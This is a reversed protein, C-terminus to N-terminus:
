KSASQTTESNKTEKEVNMGNIESFANFVREFDEGFPLSLLQERDAEDFVPIETGPVYAYNILIFVGRAEGDDTLKNANEFMRGVTTQRIEIQEGFFQIIKSRFRKREASFIRSKMTRPDMPMTVPPSPLPAIVQGGTGNDAAGVAGTTTNTVDVEMM